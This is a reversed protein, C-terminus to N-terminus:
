ARVSGFETQSCIRETFDEVTKVLQISLKARFPLRSADGKRRRIRSQWHGRDAIEASRGRRTTMSPRAM